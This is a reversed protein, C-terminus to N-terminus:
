KGRNITGDKSQYGVLMFVEVGLHDWVERMFWVALGGFEKRAKRCM